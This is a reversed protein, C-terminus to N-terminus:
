PVLRCDSKCNLGCVHLRAVASTEGQKMSKTDNLVLPSTQRPRGWNGRQMGVRVMGTYLGSIGLHNQHGIAAQCSIVFVSPHDTYNFCM